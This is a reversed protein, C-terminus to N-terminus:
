GPDEVLPLSLPSFGFRAYRMALTRVTTQDGHRALSSPGSVLRPM